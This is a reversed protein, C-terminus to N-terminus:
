LIRSHAGTRHGELSRGIHGRERDVSTFHRHRFAGRDELSGARHADRHWRQAPVRLKRDDAVAANTEDRDFACGLEDRRAGRLCRVTLLDGGFRVRGHLSTLGHEAHEELPIRNFLNRRATRAVLELFVHPAVVHGGILTRRKAQALAVFALAIRENLVVHGRTNQARAAHARALVNLHDAHELGAKAALVGLDDDARVPIGLVGPAGPAAFAHAHAGGARDVVDDWERLHPRLRQTLRHPLHAAHARVAGDAALEIELHAAVVDLAHLTGPYFLRGRVNSGRAHLSAESEIERHM